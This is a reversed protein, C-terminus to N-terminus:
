NGESLKQEIVIETAGNLQAKKWNEIARDREGLKFLVDGYHELLEPSNPTLTLAKALTQEAKKFEGKKFLVWGYTDLYNANDPETKLARSIMEEAKDLKEGRLSLFWAYNNLALSSNPDKALALDFNEDSKPFQGTKHYLEGLQTCADVYVDPSDTLKKVKELAWTAEEYNKLQGNAVGSYYLFSEENPFYELAKAADAGLSKYDNARADLMLLQEWAPAHTPELDVAQRYYVRASDMKGEMRLVDGRLGLTRASAPASECVLRVCTSLRQRADANQSAANFLSAIISMKDDLELSPSKMARFLYEDSRAMDGKERYHDALSLLAFGDDPNAESLKRLLEMAQEDEGKMKLLEYKSRLHRPDGPFAEILKDLEAGAKNLDNMLLYIQHKRYIVEENMGVRKEIEDYEKVADPLRKLRIYYQALTFRADMEEPFKKVCRAQVEAAKDFQMQREYAQGLLDYYWYNEADLDLAQRGYSIANEPDGTELYIKAINYLAAAHRPWLQVCQQFLNIAESLNGQLYQTEAEIFLYDVREKTKADMTGGNGGPVPKPTSVETNKKKKKEKKGGPTKQASLSLPAALALALLWLSLSRLMQNM